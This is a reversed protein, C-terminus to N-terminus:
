ALERLRQGLGGMHRQEDSNHPADGRQFGGTSPMIKSMAGPTRGLGGHRLVFGLPDLHRATQTM